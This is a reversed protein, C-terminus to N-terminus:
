EQEPEQNGAGHSSQTKLYKTYAKRLKENPAPPNSIAEVFIKKDQMSKLVQNHETIVAKAEKSTCYVIFESLSKFGSIDSAHKILAKQEKSIRVDIRDNLKHAM